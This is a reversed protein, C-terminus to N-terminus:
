RHRPKILIFSRYTLLSVCQKDKYTFLFENVPLCEVIMNDDELGRFHIFPHDRGEFFVLPKEANAGYLVLNSGDNAPIVQYTSSGNYYLRLGQKVHSGTGDRHHDIVYHHYDLPM